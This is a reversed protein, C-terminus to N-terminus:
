RGPRTAHGHRHGRRMRHPQGCLEAGPDRASRWAGLRGRAARQGGHRNGRPRRDIGHLSSGRRGADGGPRAAATRAGRDAAARAANERAAERRHPEGRDQVAGARKWAPGNSPLTSCSTPPWCPGRADALWTRAARLARAAGAFRAHETTVNLTNDSGCEIANHNGYCSPHLKHQGKCYFVKGLDITANEPHNNKTFLTFYGLPSQLPDKLGTFGKQALEVSVIGNRASMAGTLKFTPAGDWISQFSGSLQNVLIGFANIMQEKSLGFLRGAIAAAGFANATGCLEFSTAFAFDESVAIRAALDGGLIVAAILERGSSGKFEATSIATGETTSSVHGVMKGENAGEPEPGTVEHDFSRVMICNMMAAHPLPVKDGHVLVTSQKSGGWERILELLARNGSINAGSVACGAVDILRKKAAEIDEKGFAEYKTDLVNAVLEDILM